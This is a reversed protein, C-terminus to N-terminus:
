RDDFIQKLRQPKLLRELSLNGFRAQVDSLLMERYEIRAEDNVHRYVYVIKMPSPHEEENKQFIDQDYEIVFALVYSHDDIAVSNDILTNDFREADCPHNNERCWEQHTSFFEKLKAIQALRIPQYPQRPYITTDRHTKRDYLAIEAAHVPAFHVESRHYIVSDEGFRGLYWGYLSAELKLEQSFILLCGASPNIHTDIFLSKTSSEIRLVAGAELCQDNGGSNGKTLAGSKWQGRKRDFRALYLNQLLGLGDDFYYGIVFQLPDDLVQYSTIAHDLHPLNQQTTTTFAHSVLVERLTEATVDRSLVM